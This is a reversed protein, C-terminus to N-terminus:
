QQNIKNVFINHYFFYFLSHILFAPYLIKYTGLLIPNWQYILPTYILSMIHINHDYKCNWLCRTWDNGDKLSIQILLKLLLLLLFLPLSVMHVDLTGENAIDLLYLLCVCREYGQLEPEDDMDIQDSLRNGGGGNKPPNPALPPNNNNHNHNKNPNAVAVAATETQSPPINSTKTTTLARPHNHHNNNSINNHNNTNDMVEDDEDDYMEDDM